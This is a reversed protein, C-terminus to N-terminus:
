LAQEQPKSLEFLNASILSEIFRTKVTSKETEETKSFKDLYADEVFSQFTKGILKQAAMEQMKELVEEPDHALLIMDLFSQKVETRLYSRELSNHYIRSNKLRVITVLRTLAIAFEYLREYQFRDFYTVVGLLLFNMLYKSNPRYVEKILKYLSGQPEFCIKKLTGTYHLLYNFTHTGQYLPARITLAGPWGKLNPRARQNFERVLSEEIENEFSHRLQGQWNRVRWFVEAILTELLNDIGFEHVTKELSEWQKANIINEAESINPARLHYAKIQVTQSPRVGRSNQADFFTFAEDQSPTVIKNFRIVPFVKEHWDIHSTSSLISRVYRDIKKVQEISVPLIIFNKLQDKEGLASKLILLSTLRQQGDIIEYVSGSESKKYLLISGMFYEPQSGNKAFEALDEVLKDIHDTTWVYPRQYSPIVLQHQLLDNLSTIESSVKSVSVM